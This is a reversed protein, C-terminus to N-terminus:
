CMRNFLLLQKLSNRQFFNLSSLQGFFTQYFIIDMVVCGDVEPVGVNNPKFFIGMDFANGMQITM